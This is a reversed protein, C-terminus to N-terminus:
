ADFADQQLAAIFEGQAPIAKFMKSGPGCANFLGARRGRNM